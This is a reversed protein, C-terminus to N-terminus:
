KNVIEKPSSVVECLEEEDVLQKKAEKDVSLVTGEPIMIGDRFFTRIAKIKM